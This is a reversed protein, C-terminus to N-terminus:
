CTGKTVSYGQEKNADSGFSNATEALKSALAASATAPKSAQAGPDNPSGGAGHGVLPSGKGDKMM